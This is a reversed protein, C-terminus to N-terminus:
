DPQSTSLLRFCCLYGLRPNTKLGRPTILHGLYEVEQRIFHCKNPKLKLGADSIRQIVACLHQLHEEFTRSFVIVDDIYVAVFDPGDETNLGALVREMLRQLVSPANTLGFPMARFQFLGQPTIFATKEASDPHM